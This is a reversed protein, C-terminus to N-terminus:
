LHLWDRGPHPVNVEAPDAREVEVSNHISWEPDYEIWWSHTVRFCHLEGFEDTIKVDYHDSGDHDADYVRMVNRFWNSIATELSKGRIVHTQYPADSHTMKWSLPEEISM